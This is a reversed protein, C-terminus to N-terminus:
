LSVISCCFFTVFNCDEISIKVFWRKVRKQPSGPFHHCHPNKIKSGWENASKLIQLMKCWDLFHWFIFCIVFCIFLWTHTSFLSQTFIIPQFSISILQLCLKQVFMGTHYKNTIYKQWTHPLCLFAVWHISQWHRISSQWCPCNFEYAPCDSGDLLGAFGKILNSFQNEM